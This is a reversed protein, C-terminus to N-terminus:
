ALTTFATARHRDTRGDTVLRYEIMIASRLCRRTTATPSGTEQFWPNNSFGTPDSKFPQWICRPYSSNVFQSLYSAMDQFRYLIPVYNCLCCPGNRPLEDWIRSRSGALITLGVPLMRGFILIGVTRTVPGVTEAFESNKELAVSVMALVCQVKGRHSPWASNAQIAPKFVFVANGRFPWGM